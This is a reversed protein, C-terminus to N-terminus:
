LSGSKQVDPCIYHTPSLVSKNKELQNVFTIWFYTFKETTIITEGNRFVSQCFPAANQEM